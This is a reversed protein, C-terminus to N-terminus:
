SSVKPNLKYTYINEAKLKKIVAARVDIDGSLDQSQAVFLNGIMSDNPAGYARSNLSAFHIGVLNFNSDIIMSGSSGSGLDGIEDSTIVRTGVNFLKNLYGEGVKQYGDINNIQKPGYYDLISENKIERDFAQILSGYSKSGRWSVIASSNFNRDGPYGGSFLQLQPLYKKSNGLGIYWNAEDKTNLVKYYNPLKEKIDEIDFVMPVLAFDLTGNKISKIGEQNVQYWTKLEENIKIGNASLQPLYWARNVFNQSTINYVKALNSFSIGSLSNYKNSVPSKLPATGWLLYQYRDKDEYINSSILGANNELYNAYEQKSFWRSKTKNDKSIALNSWSMVHNNTAVLLKIKNKPLSDDVIRDVIWGTGSNLEVNKGDKTTLLNLSITRDFIYQFYDENKLLQSNKQNFNASLYVTQKTKQNYIELIFELKAYRDIIRYYIDKVVVNDIPENKTITLFKPYEEKKILNVLQAFNTPLKGFPNIQILKKILEVNISYSNNTQEDTYSTVTKTEKVLIQPSNIQYINQEDYRVKFANELRKQVDDGFESYGIKNMYLKSDAINAENQNFYVKARLLQERYYPNNYILNYPDNSLKLIDDISYVAPTKYKLEQLYSNQKNTLFVAKTSILYSQKTAKILVNISLTGDNDNGAWNIIEYDNKELIKEEIKQDEKILNFVFIFYANIQEKNINSALMQKTKYPNINVIEVSSKPTKITNNPTSSNTQACSAIITPIIIIQSIITIVKLFRKAKLNM